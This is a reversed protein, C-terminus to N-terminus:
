KRPWKANRAPKALGAQPALEMTSRPSSGGHYTLILFVAPSDHVPPARLCLPCVPCFSLLLLTSNLPPRGGSVGLEPGFPLAGPSGSPQHGADHPDILTEGEM